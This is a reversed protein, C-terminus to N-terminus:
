PLENEKLVLIGSKQKKISLWKSVEITEEAVEGSKTYFIMYMIMLVLREILFDAIM